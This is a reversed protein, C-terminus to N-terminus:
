DTGHDQGRNVPVSLFHLLAKALCAVHNADTEIHGDPLTAVFSSNSKVLTVEPILDYLESLLYTPICKETHGTDIEKALHLHFSNDSGRFEFVTEYAVGLFNKLQIALELPVCYERFIGITSENHKM